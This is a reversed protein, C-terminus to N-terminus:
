GVEGRGLTVVEASPCLGLGVDESMISSDEGQTIKVNDYQAKETPVKINVLRHTDNFLSKWLIYNFPTLFFGFM